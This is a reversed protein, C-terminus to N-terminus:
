KGRFRHSQLVKGSADKQIIDVSLINRAGQKLLTVTTSAIPIRYGDGVRIEIPVDRSFSQPIGDTAELVISIHAQAPADLRDAFNELSEGDVRRLRLTAFVFVEFMNGLGLPDGIPRQQITVGSCVLVELGQCSIDLNEDTWSLGRIEPLATQAPPVPSVLTTGQRTAETEALRRENEMQMRQIELAREYAGFPQITAPKIELPIRTDLPSTRVSPPAAPPVSWTYFCSRETCTCTPRSGVPAGNPRPPPVGCSAIQGYADASLMLLILWRMRALM